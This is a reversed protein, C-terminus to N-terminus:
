EETDKNRAVSAFLNLYIEFQRREFNSLNELNVGNSLCIASVIGFAVSTILTPIRPVLGTKLYESFVPIFLILALVMILTKKM